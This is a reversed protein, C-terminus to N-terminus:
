GPVPIDGSDPSPVCVCLFWGPFPGCSFLRCFCFFPWFSRRLNWCSVSSCLPCCGPCCSDAQSFSRCSSCSRCTQPCFRCDSRRWLRHSFCSSFTLFLGSCCAPSFLFGPSSGYDHLFLLYVLLLILIMKWGRDVARVGLPVDNAPRDHIEPRVMLFVVIVSVLFLQAMPRVAGTVAILLGLLAIEWFRAFTHKKKFGTDKMIIVFLWVCVMLLFTFLYESAVFNSFLIMSPWFDAIALSVLGAKRGAILRATRWCFFVTGVALAVNFYLAAKVSVGTFRFLISLVYPYGYVHPFVAIYDCYGPGDTLLTGKLILQAVEYYTKYDSEPKMPMTRVYHLRIAFGAALLAAALGGELVAAAKPHSAFFHSLQLRAYIKGAIVLGFALALMGIIWKGKLLYPYEQGNGIRNVAFTMALFLVAMLIFMALTYFWSRRIKM